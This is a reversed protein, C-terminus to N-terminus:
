KGNTRQRPGPIIGPRDTQTKNYIFYCHPLNKKWHIPKTRYINYCDASGYGSEETIEAISLTSFHFVARSSKKKAVNLKGKLM